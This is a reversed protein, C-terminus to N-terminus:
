FKNKKRAKVVERAMKGFEKGKLRKEYVTSSFHEQERKLKLYNGYIAESLTGDEVAEIVACGKENEHSCDSYRCNEALEAIQDYTLELGGEQNTIGLERMGPTDIVISGNPLLLLERHTTTHRGKSTSESIAKTELMDKEMLGNILTSKGVGSSGIFCYTLQPEMKERLQEFGELTINSVLMLPVKANRATIQNQLNELEEKKVLDTKTLVIMPEIKGAYCISLYRELRNLNFDHGVAQVIFAVDINSAILQIEGQKGVAQRELFSYRPYIQLIVASDKDIRAIKVWDGVAPFDTRSQAAYRINGTIEAQLNGDESIVQYREKHEASVRALEAPAFEVGILNRIQDSYGLQALNVKEM